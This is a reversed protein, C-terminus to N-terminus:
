QTKNANSQVGALLAYRLPLDRNPTYCEGSSPLKTSPNSRSGMSLGNTVGRLVDTIDCEM